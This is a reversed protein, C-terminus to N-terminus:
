PHSVVYVGQFLVELVVAVVVGYSVLEVVDTLLDQEGVVRNSGIGVLLSLVNGLIVEM